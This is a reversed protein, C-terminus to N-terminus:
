ARPHLRDALGSALGYVLKSAPAPVGLRDAIEVIVGLLGDVELRKGAEADNLMSSRFDGLKRAVNMRDEVTAALSVGLRDGITLYEQMMAVLIPSVQPHDLMQGSTMRSLASVPNFSANAWLKAWIDSRIDGSIPAACGSAAILRALERTVDSAAGDPEGLIFRDVGRIEIVGPAAVRTSAHIVAGIRAAGRLLAASKGEPDLLQLMAGNLPGDLGDLFWWPLGNMATVVAVGPRLVPAIQRVTPAFDYAKVTLIIADPAPLEAVSDSAAIRHVRTTAGHHITLGNTRIADLAAARALLAVDAGAGAFAGALWGGIAGAGIVLINM